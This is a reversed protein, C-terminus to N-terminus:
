AIVTARDQKYKALLANAEALESKMARAEEALKMYADVKEAYLTKTRDLEVVLAANAERCDAAAKIADALGAQAAEKETRQCYADAQAADKEARMADVKAEM